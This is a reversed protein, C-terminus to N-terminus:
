IALEFASIVEVKFGDPDAFFVAYSHERTFVSGDRRHGHIKKTDDERAM